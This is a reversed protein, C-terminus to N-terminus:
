ASSPMRSLGQHSSNLRTSKRDGRTDMFLYAYGASPWALHEHPLGRGGGYGNFEVVTPLRGSSGAPLLFWAKVADGGFGPFTVDWVEVTTLGSEVRELVPTGGFARAEGLTRNWFEDFDAPEAVEPRYDRLEALPLDLFPM